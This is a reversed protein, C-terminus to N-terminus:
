KLTHTIQTRITSERGGNKKEKCKLRVRKKKKERKKKIKKIINKKPHCILLKTLNCLLYM